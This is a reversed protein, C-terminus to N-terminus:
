ATTGEITVTVRVFLRRDDDLVTIVGEANEDRHPVAMLNNKIAGKLTESGSSWPHTNAKIMRELIEIATM